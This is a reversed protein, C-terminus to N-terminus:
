SVAEIELRSRLKGDRLWIRIRGRFGCTGGCVYDGTVITTDARQEFENLLTLDIVPIGSASDLLRDASRDQVPNCQSHPRVKHGSQALLAIVSSPPDTYTWEGSNQDFRAYGACLTRAREGSSNETLLERFALSTVSDPLETVKARDPKCAATLLLLIVARRISM